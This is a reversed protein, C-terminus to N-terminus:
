TRKALKQQATILELERAQMKKDAEYGDPNGRRFDRIKDLEAALGQPNQAGTPLLSAAPNVDLALSAMWKLVQPDNGIVRGDATRGGFLREEIEKPAAELLNRIAQTNRNYDPGKWTARLEADAQDHFEADAKERAANAHDVQDYYATLVNNYQQPTWNNKHAFAALREAGAKDNEALVLGEPLEVKYDKPDLPVGQAERWAKQEEPTGKDPFASPPPKLQGSSIKAHLERTSKFYAGEDTYRELTKLYAKDDGAVRARWDAEAQQQQQGASADPAAAAAGGSTDRAGSIITGGKSAAGTDTTTTTTADPAAAGSLLEEPM